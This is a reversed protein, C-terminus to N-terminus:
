ESNTPAHIVEETSMTAYPISDSVGGHEEPVAKYPVVEHPLTNDMAAEGVVLMM